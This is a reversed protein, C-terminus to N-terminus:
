ISGAVHGVGHLEGHQRLAALGFEDVGHALVLQCAPLTRGAWEDIRHQARIGDIDDIGRHVAVLVKPHRVHGVDSWLPPPSMAVLSFTSTTMTPAPADPDTYADTSALAPLFTTIRSLPGSQCNCSRTLESNQPRRSFGEPAGTM